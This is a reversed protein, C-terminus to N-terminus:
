LNFYDADTYRVRSRYTPQHSLWQFFRKLDALTAHQTSKSLRRGSSKGDQTALRNKFAIAQESRFTRFDRWNTYEEFRSLSKAVADVTAESHRQAHRLFACYQRKIRENDANHVPVM